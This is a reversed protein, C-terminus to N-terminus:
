RSCAAVVRELADGRAIRLLRGALLIRVQDFLTPAGRLAEDSDPYDPAAGIRGAADCPQTVPVQVDVTRIQPEPRDRGACAVTLLAVVILPIVRSM